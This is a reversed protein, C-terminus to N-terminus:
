VLEEICPTMIELTAKAPYAHMRVTEIIEACSEHISSIDEFEVILTLIGKVKETQKLRPM